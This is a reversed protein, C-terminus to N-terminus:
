ICLYVALATTAHQLQSLAILHGRLHITDLMM